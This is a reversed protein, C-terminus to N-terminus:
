APAAIRPPCLSDHSVCLMEGLPYGEDNGLTIYISVDDGIGRDIVADVGFMDRIQEDTPYASEFERETGINNIEIPLTLEYHRDQCSRDNVEYGDDANGWVDYTWIEWATEITGM